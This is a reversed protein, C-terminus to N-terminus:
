IITFGIWRAVAIIAIWLTLSTAGAIKASLPTKGEDWRDSSRQTLLHFVIMNLGAIVLLLMKIRFPWNAAYKVAKSSFMLFGSTVAVAFATWTVPLLQSMLRRASKVHATMGLLRLDVISITGVVTAIALVHVTEIWPFLSDGELIATAFPM